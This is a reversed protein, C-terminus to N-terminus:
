WASPPSSIARSMADRLGKDTTSAKVREFMGRAADLNVVRAITKGLLIADAGAQEPRLAHELVALMAREASGELLPHVSLWLADRLAPNKEALPSGKAFIRWVLDNRGMRFVPLVADCAGAASLHEAPDNLVVEVIKTIADDRGQMLLVRIASELDGKTLMDRLGTDIGTAGALAPPALSRQGTAGYTFLPDGFIAVKWLPANDLRMAAGFPGGALLRGAANPTPVFAGLFPEHVSGAYCFVGRELWRGGLRDRNGINTASWSHVIGAIAPRSLEPVDGPVCRGPNLDFFDDNGKTNVLILGADIPRAARAKWDAAGNRPKDMVESAVKAQALVKGALTADFTNWPNTDDYGDFLWAGRPEIFIGCMAMYAAHSPTGFIQGAWGWRESATLGAGLRGVRDTMALFEGQNKLLRNPLSMCLTIADLDDGLGRWAYGSRAAVGEIERCLGDAEEPSAARDIGNHMATTMLIQGRAAALAVGATWAGDSASVVVIGPPTHGAKKWAELLKESVGVKDMDADPVGWAAEVTDFLDQPKVDAKNGPLSWRVVQGPGFGRVFRAIEERGSPTGDDILVPFRVKPTWARIAALYSAADPVVVLTALDTQANRENRIREGLLLAPPAAPAPQAGAVEGFWGLVLMTGLTLGNMVM